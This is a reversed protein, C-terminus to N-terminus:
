SAVADMRELNGYALRETQDNSCYLKLSTYFQFQRLKQLSNVSCIV